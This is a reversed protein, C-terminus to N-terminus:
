QLLGVTKLLMSRSATIVDLNAQYSRNADGMDMAEILPNVNPTQVYGQPDAAPNSPDFKKGFAATDGQVSSVKVKYAGMAQDFENKFSVVQRQYPQQGPATPTTGANAINEAIVKMRRTQARLGSASIAFIDNGADSM